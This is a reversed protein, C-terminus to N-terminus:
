VMIYFEIVVEGGPHDVSSSGSGGVLVMSSPQNEILTKDLSCFSPWSCSSASHKYQQIILLMVTWLAVGSSRDLRLALFQPRGLSLYRRGPRRVPFIKKMVVAIIPIALIYPLFLLGSLAELGGVHQLIVADPAVLRSHVTRRAAPFINHQVSEWFLPRVLALVRLEPPRNM